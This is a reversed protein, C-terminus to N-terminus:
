GCVRVAEESEADPDIFIAGAAELARKWELLTGMNPDTGRRACAAVTWSHRVHGAHNAGSSAGIHAAM